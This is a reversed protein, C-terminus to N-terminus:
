DGYCGNNDRMKHAKLFAKRHAQSTFVAQGERTYETPVGREAAVRMADKVQKPHCGAADSLIPWAGPTHFHLTGTAFPKPPFAKHFEEETVEADGIYFKKRSGSGYVIKGRM